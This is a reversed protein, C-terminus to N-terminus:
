VFETGNQRLLYEPSIFKVKARNDHLSKYKKVKELAEIVIGERIHEGNGAVTQGDRIEKLKEIDFPGTYLMPVQQLGIATCWNSLKLPTLYGEKFIKTSDTHDFIKIYIDFIRLEPEVFGYGLDQIGKGIVEGFIHLRWKTKPFGDLKNLTIFRDVIADAKDKIFKNFAKIYINSQNDESNKQILGKNALGKSTVFAKIDDRVDFLDGSAEPPADNLFNISILTGHLKETAIVLDEPSFVDPYKQLNELDYSKTYGFLNGLVGRMSVPIAPEYKEINLLNAVDQDLTVYQTLGADVSLKLAGHTGECYVPYLIGQSLTGRLKIAKVRNGKSGSLTGKQEKENWFGMKQLIWEPLVSAEPIYVVPDGKSYRPSGDELNASICEYGKIKVISLKDANPHKYVDDVLVIKVSFESM